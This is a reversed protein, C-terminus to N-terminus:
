LGLSPTQCKKHDMCACLICFALYLCMFFLLVNKLLSPSFTGRVYVFSHYFQVEFDLLCIIRVKCVNLFFLTEAYWLILNQGEVYKKRLLKNLFPFPLRLHGWSYLSLCVGPRARVCSSPVRFTPFHLSNSGCISGDGAEFGQTIHWSPSNRLRLRYFM